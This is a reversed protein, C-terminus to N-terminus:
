SRLMNSHLFLELLGITRFLDVNIVFSHNSNRLRLALLFMIVSINYLFTFVTLLIYFDETICYLLLFVKGFKATAMASEEGDIGKQLDVSTENNQKDMVTICGLDLCGLDM